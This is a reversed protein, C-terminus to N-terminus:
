RRGWRSGAQETVNRRGWRSGAQETVNRRGWRSGAQETVNRRGWRSGAQEVTVANNAEDRNYGSRAKNSEAWIVESDDAVSKGAWKNGSTSVPAAYVSDAALAHSVRHVVSGSELATASRSPVADAASLSPALLALTVSAVGVCGITKINM